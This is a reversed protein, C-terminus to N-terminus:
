VMLRFMSGSKNPRIVGRSVMGQIIMRVNLYIQADKENRSVKGSHFIRTDYGMAKAVTIELCSISRYDGYDGDLPMGRVAEIIRNETDTM